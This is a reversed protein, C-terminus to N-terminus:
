KNGGVFAKDRWRYMELGFWYFADKRMYNYTGSVRVDGYSERAFKKYDKLRLEGDMTGEFESRGFVSELCLSCAIVRGSNTCHVMLDLANADLEDCTLGENLFETRPFHRRYYQEDCSKCEWQNKATTQMGTRFFDMGTQSNKCVSRLNGLSIWLKVWEKYRWKRREVDRNRLLALDFKTKSEFRNEQSLPWSSILFLISTEEKPVGRKKSSQNKEGEFYDRKRKPPM